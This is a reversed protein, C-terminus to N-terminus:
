IRSSNKAHLVTIFGDAMAEVSPKKDKALMREYM